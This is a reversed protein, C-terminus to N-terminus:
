TVYDEVQPNHIWRSKREQQEYLNTWPKATKLVFVTPVRM